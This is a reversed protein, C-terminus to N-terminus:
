EGKTYTVGNWIFKTGDPLNDYEEQSTIEVMQAQSQLEETGEYESLIFNKLDDTTPLNLKTKRRINARLSSSINENMPEFVNTIINIYDDTPIDKIDMNERESYKELEEQVKNRAESGSYYIQGTQPDVFLNTISKTGQPTDISVNDISVGKIRDTIEAYRASDEYPVFNSRVMGISAAASGFNFELGGGDGGERETYGLQNKIIDMTYQKGWDLAEDKTVTIAGDPTTYKGEEVISRVIGADPENVGMTKLYDIVTSYQFDKGKSDLNYFRDLQGEIKQIDGEKITRDGREIDAYVPKVQDIIIDSWDKPTYYYERPNTIYDVEDFTMFKGDEDEIGVLGTEFDIKFKGGLNSVQEILGLAGTNSRQSPDLKEFDKYFNESNKSMLSAAENSNRVATDFRARVKPDYMESDPDLEYAHKTAFNRIQDDITKYANSYLDGYRKVGEYEYAKPPKQAAQQRAALVQEQQQRAQAEGLIDTPQLITQSLGRGQLPQQAM